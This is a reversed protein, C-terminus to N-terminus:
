QTPAGIPEGKLFSQIAKGIRGADSKFAAHGSPSELEIIPWGRARAFSTPTEPSLAQDKLAVITLVPARITAGAKDLSGSFRRSIDHRSLAEFQRLPNFPEKVKPYQVIAIEVMSWIKSLTFASKPKAEDSKPTGESRGLPFAKAWLAIDKQSMRPTAVISVATRAFEPYRVLWEFMQMGGMSIGVIAEVREVKLHRTLLLYHAEVMDGITIRPFNKGRAPEYNSPSTSLGNALADVAIIYHDAPDLISGPGVYQALDETNGNFFSPFLIINSGQENPKGWTRYAIQCNKLTQGSELRLDGVSATQLAPAIAALCPSLTAAALVVCFYNGRV